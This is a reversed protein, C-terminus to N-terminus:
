PGAEAGQGGNNPGRIDSILYTNDASRQIQIHLKQGPKLGALDVGPAADFDMSMAPWRWAAIAEHKLSLRRQDPSLREVRADVWATTPAATATNVPEHKGPDLRRFDSTKSSESDILFQASTVIREGEALGALIEVQDEGVRGVGVAVSKFRGEGLALVVRAQSGTRILAERPILLTERRPRTVIEMQAFMGPKLHGDPNDFHVRVLATRTEANLKPYIYDVKGSWERGPSYGLRMRVPDGQRVSAAQSEFVEGIVWIHELQGISM